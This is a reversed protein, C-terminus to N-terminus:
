DCPLPSIQQCRDFTGMAVDFEPFASLDPFHESLVFALPDSIGTLDATSVTADQSPATLAAGLVTSDAVGAGLAFEPAMAATSSAAQTAVISAVAAATVAAIIVGARRNAREHQPHARTTVM